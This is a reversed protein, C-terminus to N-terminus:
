SPIRINPRWITFSRVPIPSASLRRRGAGADERVPQRRPIGSHSQSIRDAASRIRHRERGCLCCGQPRVAVHDFWLPDDNSEQRPSPWNVGLSATITRSGTSRWGWYWSAPGRRGAWRPKRTGCERAPVCWAGCSTPLARDQRLRRGREFRRKADLQAGRLGRDVASAIRRSQARLLLRMWVSMTVSPSLQAREWDTRLQEGADFQRRTVHGRVYLWGLPSEALNVTVSRPLAGDARLPRRNRSLIPRRIKRCSDGCSGRWCIARLAPSRIFLTLLAIAALNTDTRSLPAMADYVSQVWDRARATPWRPKPQRNSCDEEASQQM